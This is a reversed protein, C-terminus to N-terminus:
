YNNITLRLKKATSNMCVRSSTFLEHIRVFYLHANKNVYYFSKIVKYFPTKDSMIFKYILVFFNKTDIENKFQFINPKFNTKDEKM